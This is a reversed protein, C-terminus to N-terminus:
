AVHHLFLVNEPRTALLSSKKSILKVVRQKKKEVEEEYFKEERLYDQIKCFFDYDEKESKSCDLECLRIELAIIERTILSAISEKCSCNLCIIGIGSLPHSKVSLPSYDRWKSTSGEEFLSAKPILLLHQYFNGHIDKM